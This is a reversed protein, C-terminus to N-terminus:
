RTPDPWPANQRRPHREVDSGCGTVEFYRRQGLSGFSKRCRKQQEGQKPRGLALQPVGASIAPALLDTRELAAVHAADGRIVRPVSASRGAAIGASDGVGARGAVLLAPAGDASAIGTKCVAIAIHVAALRVVRGARHMATPTEHVAWAHILMGLGAAVVAQAADVAAEKAVFVTVM